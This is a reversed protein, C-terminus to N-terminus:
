GGEAKAKTRLSPALLLGAIFAPLMTVGLAFRIGFHDALVGIVPPGGVFAILSVFTVMAVNSAAPRGGVSAAASVALPVGTSGGMGILAFGLIALWYNPSVALLM